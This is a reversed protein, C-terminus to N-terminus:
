KKLTFVGPMHTGDQAIMDVRGYHRGSCEPNIDSQLKEAPIMTGLGGKLSSCQYFMGKTMSFFLKTVDFDADTYITELAFCQRFMSPCREMAMPKWGTLDITRISNCRSFMNDFERVKSVDWSRLDLEELLTCDCFVKFFSNYASSTDWKSVDIRVLSACFEFAGVFNGVNSVDWDGVDISTLMKCKAFIYRINKAKSMDWSAVDLERVTECGEFAKSFSMINGTNWDSVDIVSLTRCNNFLQSITEVRSLDWTGVDISRLSTCGMFTGWLGNCQSLDLGEVDVTELNSCGRFWVNMSKPRVTSGFQVSKILAKNDEWLTSIRAKGEEEGYYEKFYTEVDEINRLDDIIVKRETEEEPVEEGDLYIYPANHDLFVYNNDGELPPYVAIEEGYLAKDMNTYASIQNIIFTGDSFLVTRFVAKQPNDTRVKIVKSADSSEEDSYLLAATEAYSAVVSLLSTSNSVSVWWADSSPQSFLPIIVPKGDGKIGAGSVSVSRVDHSQGEMSLNDAMVNLYKCDHSLDVGTINETGASSVVEASACMMQRPIGAGAKTVQGCAEENGLSIGTIVSEAPIKHFVIRARNADAADIEVRDCAIKGGYGHIEVSAYVKDDEKWTWLDAADDSLEADNFSQRASADLTADVTVTMLPTEDPVDNVCVVAPCEDVSELDIIHKEGEAFVADVSLSETEKSVAVLAKGPEKYRTYDVTMTERSDRGYLGTGAIMVKETDFGIGYFSVDALDLLIYRCQNALVVGTIERQGPQAEVEGKFYAMNKTLPERMLTEQGYVASGGVEVAVIEADYPIRDFVIVAKAPDAEDINMSKSQCVDQMGDSVYVAYAVDGETWKRLASMYEAQEGLAPEVSDFGSDDLRVEVSVSVVDKSPRAQHASLDAEEFKDSCGTWVMIALMAPLFRYYKMVNMAQLILLWSEAM